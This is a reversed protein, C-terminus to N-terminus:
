LQAFSGDVMESSMVGVDSREACSRWGRGEYCEISWSNEDGTQVNLSEIKGSEASAM